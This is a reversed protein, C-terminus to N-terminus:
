AVQAEHFDCAGDGGCRPDNGCPLPGHTAGFIISEPVWRADGRWRTLYLGRRTKALPVWEDTPTAALAIRAAASVSRKATKSTGKSKASM